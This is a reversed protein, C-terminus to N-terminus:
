LRLSLGGAARVPSNEEFLKVYGSSFRYVIFIVTQITQDVAVLRVIARYRRLRFVNIVGFVTQFAEGIGNGADNVACRLAEIVVLIGGVADRIAAQGAHRQEIVAPDVVAIVAQEPPRLPVDTRHQRLMLAKGCAAGGARSRHARLCVIGCCLAAGCLEGAELIGIVLDSVDLLDYILHVAGIPIVGIVTQPLEAKRGFVLGVANGAVAILVEIVVSAVQGRPDNLVVASGDGLNGM